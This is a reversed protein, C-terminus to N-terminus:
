PTSPSRSLAFWSTLQMVKFMREGADVVGREHADLAKSIEAVNWVGSERTARSALVDRCRAVLAPGLRQNASTPFGYKPVRERVVEPIRGRMAQRLLVKTYQGSLKWGAGLRFALTVIRHDLFPMRVEIGHAMSNRDDVRLYLPLNSREVSSRLSDALSRPSAHQQPRWHQKVDASVWRDDAIAARQLRAAIRRHGPVLRKLQDLCRGVLAGHLSLASREHGRAFARIERHAMLPRGGRLLDMWYDLFYNAYGALTEDAGQGSLMIKLGRERALRMLEYMVVSTWSHVPEDQHWLHRDFSAWLREHDLELRSVSAGTEALTADIFRAEDYTPDAYCLANIQAANGGTQAVQAAVSSLISTSDLGGSLAVGVPVDGRMRLRVADDFTERFLAVPDGPEGLGAAEELHWYRRFVPAARADGEFCTGAPVPRIGAYFTADTADLRDELLYHAVTHWDPQTQVYGSDRIAKIESALVLGRADHYWFLPKVGFRDRATFIRRERRDYIVFAWMGNLRPLCAAGWQRYAALLVETDGDSRFVHGLARLETRLEIYNYIAGNFVIVHRGDASQMPQHSSDALDFIALRRFAFTLAHEKFEGADDPGRHAVLDGMRSPVAPDRAREDASLVMAFGCM